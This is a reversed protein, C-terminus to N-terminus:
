VLFVYGGVQGVVSLPGVMWWAQTPTNTPGDAPMNLRLRFIAAPGVLVGVWAKPEAEVIEVQGVVDLPGM